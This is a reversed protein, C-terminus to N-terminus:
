ETMSGQWRDARVILGEMTGDHFFVAGRTVTSEGPACEEPVPDSHICPIRPNSFIARSPNWITGLWRTMDGRAHVAVVPPWSLEETLRCFPISWSASFWGLDDLERNDPGGRVNMVHRVHDEPVEGIMTTGEGLQVPIGDVAVWTMAFSTDAFAAMTHPRTCVLIRIDSIPQQTRNTFRMETRVAMSDVSASARFLNGDRTNVEYWAETSDSNFKWRSPHPLGDRTDTSVGSFNTGWSHEPFDLAMYENEDWPSRVYLMNLMSESTDRHTFLRIPHSETQSVQNVPKKEACSAVAIVATLLMLVRAIM